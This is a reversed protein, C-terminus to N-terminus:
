TARDLLGRCLDQWDLGQSGFQGRRPILFKWLSKIPFVKFIKELAM